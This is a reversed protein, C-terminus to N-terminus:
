KDSDHQEGFKLYIDELQKAAIEIDLGCKKLEVKGISRDYKGLNEISTLKDMWANIDALPLYYVNACSKLEGTITNSLLVPLGESIAEVAAVPFGEYKSPMLLVDFASYLQEVDSRRGLLRVYNSMQKNAIMNRIDQELEGNGACLLVAKPNSKHYMEMIAIAKMYNKQESLRGVMGIVYNKEVNFEHRIKNRIRESFYFKNTDIANPLVCAKKRRMNTKGFVREGALWGCGIVNTAYYYNLACGSLRRIESKISVYPSSTHAHAIRQPIGAKKAIRLAVYSTENEHVHVAQYNGSKLLETLASDFVKLGTSKLPLRYIKAGLKEMEAANQGIMDTTVAIDFHIKTRDLVRYYNLVVTSIGGADAGAMIHLVRYM